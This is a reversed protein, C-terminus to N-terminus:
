RDNLVDCLDKTYFVFADTLLLDIDSLIVEVNFEKNSEQFLYPAFGEDRDMWENVIKQVRAFDVTEFLSIYEELSLIDGEILMKLVQFYGMIIKSLSTLKETQLGRIFNLLKETPVYISVGNYSLIIEPLTAGHDFFVTVDQGSPFCTSGDRSHTHFYAIAYEDKFTVM